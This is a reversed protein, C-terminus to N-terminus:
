PSNRGSPKQVNNTRQGLRFDPELYQLVMPDLDITFTRRELQHSHGLVIERHQRRHRLSLRRNWSSDEGAQDLPSDERNGTLLRAVGEVASQQYHLRLARLHHCGVAVAQRKNLTLHFHAPEVILQPNQDGALSHTLQLSKQSLPILLVLNLKGPVLDM